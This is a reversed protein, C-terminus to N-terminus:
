KISVGDSLRRLEAYTERKDYYRKGDKFSVSNIVFHNHYHEKDLHTTVLVEFEDGWMKQALEVGIAHAMEATVEGSVFSQYGHFALVSDEKHAAKKTQIMQDYVNYPSCNVGSVYFQKETKFDNEVYEIVNELGQFEYDNFDKNETKMPNVVYDLVDKLSYKVAWM